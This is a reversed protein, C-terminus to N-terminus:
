WPHCHYILCQVLFSSHRHTSFSLLLVQSVYMRGHTLMGRKPYIACSYSDVVRDENVIGFKTLEPSTLNLTESSVHDAAAAAAAVAAVTGAGTGEGAGEGTGSGSGGETSSASIPSTPGADVLSPSVDTNGSVDSHGRSHGQGQSGAGDKDDASDVSIASVDSSNRRHNKGTGKWGKKAAARELSSDQGEEETYGVCGGGGDDDGDSDDGEDDSGGSLVGGLGGGRARAIREAHSMGEGEGAGTGAGAGECVEEEVRVYSFLQMETCAQLLVDSLTEGFTEEDPVVSGVTLRSGGIARTSPPIPLMNHPLKEESYLAALSAANVDALSLISRRWNLADSAVDVAKTAHLTRVAPVVSGLVVQQTTALGVMSMKLDKLSAGVNTMHDKVGHVLCKTAVMAVGRAHVMYTSLAALQSEEQAELEKVRKEIRALREAVTEMGLAGGIKSSRMAEKMAKATSGFGGGFRESFSGTSNQQLVISPRKSIGNSNVSAAAAAAAAAAANDDAGSSASVAAAATVAAAAAAAGGGGDGGSAGGWVREGDPAAGQPGCLEQEVSTDAAGVGTTGVTSTGAATAAESSHTYSVEKQRQRLEKQTAAVMSALRAVEAKTVTMKGVEDVQLELLGQEHLGLSQSIEGFGAKATAKYAECVSKHGMALVKFLEASGVWAEASSPSEFKRVVGGRDGVKVQETTGAGAGASSALPRLFNHRKELGEWASHFSGEVTAIEALKAAAAEVLLKLARTLELAGDVSCLSEVASEYTESGGTEGTGSTAMAGEDTQVSVMVMDRWRGAKDPGAGAVGAGPVSTSSSTATATAAATTVTSSSSITSAAAAASGADDSTDVAEDDPLVPSGGQGASGEGGSGDDGGGPPAGSACDAVDRLLRTAYDETDMDEVAAQMQKGYKELSSVMGESASFFGELASRSVDARDRDINEVDAVATSLRALYTNRLSRFRQANRHCTAQSTLVEKVCAVAAEDLRAVEQQPTLKTFFKQKKAEEALRVQEEDTMGRLRVRAEDRSAITTEADVVFNRYARVLREYSRKAKRLDVQCTEVSAVIAVLRKQATIKHHPFRRCIARSHLAAINLYAKGQMVSNRHCVDWASLVESIVSEGSGRHGHSLSSSGQFQFHSRVLSKGYSSYVETMDAVFGAANDSLTFRSKVQDAAVPFVWPAKALSLRAVPVVPKVSVPTDGM